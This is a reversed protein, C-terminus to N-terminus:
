YRNTPSKPGLTIERDADKNYPCGRAKAASVLFSLESRIINYREVHGPDFRGSQRAYNQLDWRRFKLDRLLVDISYSLQACDSNFRPCNRAEEVEDKEPHTAGPRPTWETEGTSQHPQTPILVVVGGGSAEACAAAAQPSATCSSPLLGRSDTLLVPSGGVYGYTNIGGALGIPDSQIYRGIRPDYDRFYNYYRGTEADFYQGPFRLNYVLQQGDGDPDANATSHGFPESIAWEWVIKNDAPNSLQRPTGLHDSWAYYLKPAPTAAQVVAVPIN